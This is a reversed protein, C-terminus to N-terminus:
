SISTKLSRKMLGREFGSEIITSVLEMPPMGTKEWLQPYQSISTMGPLTNVENFYFKSTDTDLFWDIRALGYLNLAEFVNLSLNRIEREKDESLDAPVKIIAGDEDLYKADYSYFTGTANVEGARSIEPSYGGLAACEIERVNLAAEVLVKEDFQFALDLAGKLEEPKEVKSIGVSSGLAAPKVFVKEGLKSVTEAMFADPDKQWSHKRIVTYPVISIGADSVLLKAVHKDMGIASGLTDPGIFSFGSLEFFGQLHGDEGHTGHTIPFMCIESPQFEKGSQKKIHALVAGAPTYTVNSDAKLPNSTDIDLTEKASSILAKADQVFWRGSKDIAIVNLDYKSSDVNKILFAASRCSIEHESSVGGYLVVVPKKETM